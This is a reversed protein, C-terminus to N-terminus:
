VRSNLVSINMRRRRTTILTSMENESDENNETGLTTTSTHPQVEFSAPNNFSVEKTSTFQNHAVKEFEEKSMGTENFVVNRSRLLSKTDPM